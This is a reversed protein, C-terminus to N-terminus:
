PVTCQSTRVVSRSAKSFTFIKLRLRSDFRPGDRQKRAINALGDRTSLTILLYSM